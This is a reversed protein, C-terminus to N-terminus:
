SWKGKDFGAVYENDSDFGFVPLAAFTYNYLVGAPRPVIMGNQIMQQVLDTFAGALIVTAAMNQGDEIAITGGSFIRKWIPQLSDVSGDWQNFGIRARILTRYDDDGLISSLASGGGGGGSPTYTATIQMANVQFGTGGYMTMGIRTATATADSPLPISYSHGSTDSITLTTGAVVLQMNTTDITFAAAIVQQGSGSQELIEAQGATGCLVFLFHGADIGRFAILGNGANNTVGCQMTFDSVGIDLYVDGYPPGSVGEAMCGAGGSQYEWTPEGTYYRWQAGSAPGSLTAPSTGGLDTGAPAENFTTGLIVGTVPTPPGGGPTFPLQRSAGVIVGLTDLQVGVASDLDFAAPMANACTSADALKQLLTRLFTLFKPSNQYQSTILGLYYSLPQSGIPTGPM